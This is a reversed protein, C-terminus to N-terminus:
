FQYHRYIERGQEGDRLSSIFEPEVGNEFDYTHWDILKELPTSPHWSGMNLGLRVSVQERGELTRNILIYTGIEMSEQMAHQTAEIQSPTYRSGNM